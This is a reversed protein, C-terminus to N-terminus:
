YVKWVFYDYRQAGAVYVSGDSTVEVRGVWDNGGGLTLITSEGTVLDFRVLHHTDRRCQHGPTPERVASFLVYLARGPDLAAAGPLPSGDEYRHEFHGTLSGHSDIEYVELINRDDGNFGVAYAEGAPGATSITPEFDAPLAIAELPLTWDLLRHFKFPASQVLFLRDASSASLHYFSHWTVRAEGATMHAHSAGRIVLETEEGNSETVFHVWHSPTSLLGISGDTSTDSIPIRTANSVDSKIADLWIRNPLIPDPGSLYFTGDPAVAFAMPAQKGEISYHLPELAVGDEFGHFTAETLNATAAYVRTGTAAFGVFSPADSGLSFFGPRPACAAPATSSGPTVVIESIECGAYACNPVNDQSSYSGPPCTACSRDLDNRGPHTVYEGPQCQRKPECVEGNFWTEYPCEPEGDGGSQGGSPAGGSFHGGSGGTLAGGAGGTLAGGAGGTLAGSSGGESNSNSGGAPFASSDGGSGTRGGGGSASRGGVPSSNGGPGSGSLGDLGDLGDFGDTTTRGCAIAWFFLLSPTLLRAGGSRPPPPPMSRFRRERVTPFQAM